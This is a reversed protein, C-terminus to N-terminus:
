SILKCKRVGLLVGVAEAIQYMKHLVSITTILFVSSSAPSVKSATRVNRAATTTAPTKCVRIRSSTLRKSSTQRTQVMGAEDGEGETELVGIGGSEGEEEENNEDDSFM